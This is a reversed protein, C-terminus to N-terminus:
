KGIPLAAAGVVGADNGLRAFCYRGKPLRVLGRMMEANMLGGGLIFLSPHVERQILRLFLDMKDAYDKMITLARPDKKLYLDNLQVTNKLDPITKQAFSLLANASLYMEACGKKGCTCALGQPVIVQHGWATKPSRSLVGNIISAGGVGTGFTLMTVNEKEKQLTLEGWLAGIADNDVYVPVGYMKEFTEKIPCGAWGKLNYALTCLGKQPDIDGASVMGIQEIGPEMLEDITQKIAAVIAERSVDGHAPNQTKKVIKGDHFLAGKIKTGGIDIGIRKIM